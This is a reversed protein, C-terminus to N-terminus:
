QGDSGAEKNLPLVVFEKTLMELEEHVVNGTYYIAEVFVPDDPNVTVSFFRLKDTNLGFLKALKMKLEWDYM